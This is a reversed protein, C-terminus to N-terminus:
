TDENDLFAEFEERPMPKAFYYGQGHQCGCEKLLKEQAETEIGECIVSMNLRMGLEVSASLINKMRNSGEPGSILTRDLKMVDLPLLNLLELSSYGSGFDDMSLQYGLHHLTRIIRIAQERRDPHDIFSFATETLELEIMRPALDYDDRIKKMYLMYGEQLFHMRSQNVSIPVIKKGAAQRQQQMACAEELVYNDLPIIFGNDEFISIFKDPPLFGLKSSEWRVLAEAGITKHTKLDYKPQYWVSFERRQLAQEMEAEITHRQALLEELRSDYLCVLRSSEYAESIALEARHVAAEFDAASDLRCIGAKLNVAQLETATEQRIIGRLTIAAQELLSDLPPPSGTGQPLEGLALIMKALGSVSLERLQLRTKLVKVIRPLQENILNKRNGTSLQNIAEIDVRLIYCRGTEAAKALRGTLLAPVNDMFWRWNPMGSWFDTYAIKQVELTHRRRMALLCLFILCLAVTLSLLGLFVQMPYNYVFASFTQMKNESFVLRSDRSERFDRPLSNIEHNLISLLRRGEETAPVALAIDLTCLIDGTTALDYYGNHFIQYQASYAEMYTRAARGERVAQLCGEPTDQWDIAEEGELRTKLNEASLAGKPLATYGRADAEGRRTVELFNARAYATTLYLGNKQAWAFDMPVGTVLDARGEQLAQFSAQRSATKVVQFTVGLDASIRELLEADLGILKGEREELVPFSGEPLALRLVPRQRLFDKEQLTMVLPPEAEDYQFYKSGLHDIIHPYDLRMQQEAALVEEALAPNSASLTLHLPQLFNRQILSMSLPSLTFSRGQGQPLGAIVDITGMLLRTRCQDVTGPLFILQWDRYQSLLQMYEFAYGRPEQDDSMFFFQPNSAIVGVRLVKAAEGSLPLSLLALCLLAALWTKIKM